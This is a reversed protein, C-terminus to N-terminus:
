ILDNLLAISDINNKLCYKKTDIINSWNRVFLFDINCDLSAKFDADSDGILLIKDRHSENLFERSIIETKKDPSGFINEFYSDIKRQLFIKRLEDQDGGSVVYWSSKPYLSKLIDFNDFSECKLLEQSVIEAYTSILQETSPLDTIDQGIVSRFYQFKEYRTTTDVDYHYKLFKDAYSKGFPLVTLYFSNSKIKNSNLIVGDCDFLIIKYNKLDIM